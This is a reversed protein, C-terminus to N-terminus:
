PATFVFWDTDYDASLTRDVVTNLPLVVAEFAEDDPEGDDDDATGSSTAGFGTTSVRIAYPGGAGIGRSSVEIIYTEGSVADLRVRSYLNLPSSSSINDNYAVEDYENVRLSVTMDTDATNGDGNAFTELYLAATPAARLVFQGGYSGGEITLWLSTASAGTIAVCHLEHACQIGTFGSNDTIQLRTSSDWRNRVSLSYTTASTLGTVEYYNLVPGAMGTYPVNGIVVPTGTSGANAPAPLVHLTFFAGVGFYDGSVRVWLSTGTAQAACALSFDPALVISSGRDCAAAADFDATTYISMGMLETPLEAVVLYDTGASLGTVEYHSQM